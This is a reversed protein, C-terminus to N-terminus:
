DEDYPTADDEDDCEHVCDDPAPQEHDEGDCDCAEGCHPCDHM